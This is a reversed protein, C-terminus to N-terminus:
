SLKELKEVNEGKVRTEQIRSIEEEITSIERQTQEIRNEIQIIKGKKDDFDMGSSKMKMENKHYKFAVMLKNKQDMEIQVTQYQLYTAKEQRLQNLKPTIEEDLLTQIEALKVEKKAITKLAKEKKEEFMRTGAAEQIMALIEPPKMNLVKTIKGQMILFHPNNVNLQVSQFLNALTQQQANHGNILYKNRGGILIQRTVTIQQYEEYGVPSNKTDSNNFVITVSAKSIGAQGRKYVLDQLSNARVHSLNTIGLVFCIADLINSKGSGNLGTIANFQRDWGTIHTRTAYSKFGDIILEEIYM